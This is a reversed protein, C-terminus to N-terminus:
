SDIHTYTGHPAPTQRESGGRQGRPPQDSNNGGLPPPGIKALMEQILSELTKILDIREIKLQEDGIENDQDNQRRVPRVAVPHDIEIVLVFLVFRGCRRSM